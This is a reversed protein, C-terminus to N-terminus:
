TVPQAAMARLALRDSWFYTGANMVVSLVFAIVVGRPGGLAAGAAIFLATLGGLLVATKLGNRLRHMGFWSGERDM